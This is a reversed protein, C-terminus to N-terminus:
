GTPQDAPPSGSSQGSESGPPNSTEPQPTPHAESPPEPEPVPAREVLWESPLELSPTTSPQNPHEQAGAGGALGVAVAVSAALVAVSIRVARGTGPAKQIRSSRSAPTM